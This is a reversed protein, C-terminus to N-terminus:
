GRNRERDAAIVARFLGRWGGETNGHWLADLEKDTLDKTRVPYAYVPHNQYRYGFASVQPVEYLIAGGETNFTGQWYGAPEQESYESTSRTNAQARAARITSLAEKAIDKDSMLNDICMREGAIMELAAEAILAVKKAADPIHDQATLSEKVAPNLDKMACGM